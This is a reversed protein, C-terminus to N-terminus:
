PISFTLMHIRSVHKYGPTNIAHMQLLRRIKPYQYIKPCLFYRQANALFLLSFIGFAAYSLSIQLSKLLFHAIISFTIDNARFIHYKQAIHILKETYRFHTSHKLYFQWPSPIAKPLVSLLKQLQGSLFIMIMHAVMFLTIM